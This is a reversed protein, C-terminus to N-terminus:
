ANKNRREMEEKTVAWTELYQDIFIIKTHGKGQNDRWLCTMYPRTAEEWIVINVVDMDDKKWKSYIKGREAVRKLTLFGCEIKGEIDELKGLKDIALSLERHVNGEIEEYDDFGYINQYICRKLEFECDCYKDPINRTFREPKM